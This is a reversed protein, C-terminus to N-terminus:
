VLKERLDRALEPTEVVATYFRRGGIYASGRYGRFRGTRQCNVVHVGPYRGAHPLVKEAATEASPDYLNCQRNDQVKGNRHRVQKPLYGHALAFCARAYLVPRGDFFLMLPGDEYKPTGPVLNRGRYIRGTRGNYRFIASLKSFDM